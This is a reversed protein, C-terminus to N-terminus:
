QEIPLGNMSGHDAIVNTPKENLLTSHGTNCIRCTILMTTKIEWPTMMHYIFVGTFLHLFSSNVSLMIHGILSTM